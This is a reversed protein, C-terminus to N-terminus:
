VDFRTVLMVSGEESLWYWAAEEIYCEADPLLRRSIAGTLEKEGMAPEVAVHALRGLCYISM